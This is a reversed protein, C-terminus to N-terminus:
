AAAMQQASHAQCQDAFAQAAQACLVMDLYDENTASVSRILSAMSLWQPQRKCVALARKSAQSITSPSIGGAYGIASCSQPISPCSTTPQGRLNSTDVLLQVNPRHGFANSIASNGSHHQLAVKMHANRELFTSLAPQSIKTRSADFNLQIRSARGAALKVLETMARSNGGILAAVSSGCFHLALRAHPPADKLVREVLSPTPYMRERGFRSPNILLAWEIHKHQESLQWMRRLSRQDDVGCLTLTDM